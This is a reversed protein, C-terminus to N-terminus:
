PAHPMTPDFPLHAGNAVTEGTLARIFGWHTVVALERWDARAAMLARFRAGRAAVSAESEEHEGWWREELHAFACGPWRRALEAPPSGIDCTFAARERVLPEVTIPLGLADAIIHATELARTYPSAILHRIPRSRLM